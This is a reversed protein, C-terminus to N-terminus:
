KGPTAGHAELSARFDSDVKDADLGWKGAVDKRWSAYVSSASDIWAKREAATLTYITHHDLKKLAAEGAREWDGWGQGIRASWQSTAHAEIVQKQEDTLRAFAKKNMVIAFISTYFRDDIHHTAVKDIKFATLSGWQLTIADVTGMAVAERAEPAPIQVTAGGLGAVWQALASSAPRVKLRSIGEPLRPAPNRFHFTGYENTHAILLKVESMETNAYRTYFSHLAASANGASGGTAFPLEARNIIPFRGPTYGPSIWTIDAVGNAAMDYHDKAAGLAGGEIFRIRISGGSGKEISEAWPGLGDFLPKFKPPVWTSFTLEVPEAGVAAGASSIVFIGGIINRIVRGIM